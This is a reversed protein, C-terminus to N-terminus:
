DANYGGCGGAGRVSYSLVGNRDADYEQYVEQMGIKDADSQELWASVCADLFESFNVTKSLLLIHSFSLAEGKGLLASLKSKATRKPREVGALEYLKNILAERRATGFPHPTM